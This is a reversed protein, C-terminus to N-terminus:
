RGARAQWDTVVTLNAAPQKQRPKLVMLFQKGDAAVDKFHLAEAKGESLFLGRPPEARLVPALQIAVGMIKTLPSRPDPLTSYYLERGDRRWLPGSGGNNSIQLRSGTLGVRGEGSFAQVFVEVTRGNLRSHYALWRGDPSFRADSDSEPTQLLVIPKRDGQLPLLMLDWGTGPNQERYVLYRGDPSWDLPDMHRRANTLREEEGAGSSDKRFLNFFGADRNSSFVIQKGDRSWVPNEDTTPGFTIRTNTHRAFDWVWINSHPEETGPIGYRSVAVRQQDPALSIANYPGEPAADGLPTGDVSFWALPLKSDLAPGRAYMLLGNGSIWYAARGPATAVGEALSIPDGQWQLAGGDFPRAQLTQGEMWLLYGVRGERPPMFVAKASTNLILTRQSPDTL